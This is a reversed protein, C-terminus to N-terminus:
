PALGAAYAASDSSRETFSDVISQVALGTYSSVMVLLISCGTARLASDGKLSSIVAKHYSGIYAYLIFYLYDDFLSIDCGAVRLVEKELMVKITEHRNVLDRCNVTM